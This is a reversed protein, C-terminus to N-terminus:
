CACWPQACLHFNMCRRFFLEHTLLTRRCKLVVSDWAAHQSSKFCLQLALYTTNWIRLSIVNNLLSTTCIWQSFYMYWHSAHDVTEPGKHISHGYFTVYLNMDTFSKHSFIKMYSFNLGIYPIDSIVGRFVLPRLTSSHHGLLTYM